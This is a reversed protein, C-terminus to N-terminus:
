SWNTEGWIWHQGLTCTPVVILASGEKWVSVVVFDIAEFLDKVIRTETIFQMPNFHM